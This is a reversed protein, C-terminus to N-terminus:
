QAMHLAMRKIRGGRAMRPIVANGDEGGAVAQGLGLSGGRDDLVPQPSIGGEPVAVHRDYQRATAVMGKGQTLRERSGSQKNRRKRAGGRAAIHTALRHKM